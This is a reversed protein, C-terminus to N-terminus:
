LLTIITERFEEVEKVLPLIEEETLYAFDGYDGIQRKDLLNAFLKGWKAEVLGEKIFSSGFVAKAGSHTHTTINYKAFLATILHFCTYYMRSAASNWYKKEIAIKALDFAEDAKTLRYAIIAHANGNM